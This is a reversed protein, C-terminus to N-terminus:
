EIEEKDAVIVYGNKMLWERWEEVPMKRLKRDMLWREFESVERKRYKVAINM